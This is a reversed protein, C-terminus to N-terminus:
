SVRQRQAVYDALGGSDYRDNVQPRGDDVPQAVTLYGDQDAAPQAARPAKAPRRRGIVIATYAAVTGAGLLLSAFGTSWGAAHAGAFLTFAALVTRTVEGRYGDRWLMVLFALTLLFPLVRLLEGM